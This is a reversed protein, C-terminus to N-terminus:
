LLLYSTQEDFRDVYNGHVDRTSFDPFHLRIAAFATKGFAVVDVSKAIKEKLDASDLSWVMINHDIGGSIFKRGDGSVDISLVEDRHGRIGAFIAICISNISNWLRISYDKSCTLLLHPQTQIFKIDNIAGAQFKPFLTFGVSLLNEVSVTDLLIRTAASLNAM